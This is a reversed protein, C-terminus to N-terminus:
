RWRLSDLSVKTAILFFSIVSLFYVISRSSIIGKVFNSFHEVLSIYQLIGKWLPSDVTNAIISILYLLLLSFITIVAAVIQNETLSSAFLGISVFTTVLLFMGLYGSLIPGIEPNGYKLLIAPYIFTLVVIILVFTASSLFKGIVIDLTSIPSTLLLEFTKLKKEEALSRMTVLAAVFILFIVINHLTPQVVMDNLNLRALIDFRQTQQAYQMAMQSTANFQSLLGFFIWGMVVAFGCIVVYAVPSVFYSKLERTTIASINSLSTGIRGPFSNTASM